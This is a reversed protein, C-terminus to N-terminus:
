HVGGWKGLSGSDLLSTPIRGEFENDQLYLIILKPLSGLLEGPITGTLSNDKLWLGKLSTLLAITAPVTGTLNNSSLDLEEVIGYDSSSTDCKVNREGWDCVHEPSLWGSNSAWDEGNNNYYISALTFRDNFFDVANSTPENMVWHGALLFPDNETTFDLKRFARLTEPFAESLNRTLPQGGLLRLLHDYKAEMSGFQELPVAPTTNVVSANSANTNNNNDSSGKSSTSTLLVVVIVVIVVLLILVFGAAVYLEKKSLSGWKGTEEVDKFDTNKIKPQVKPVAGTPDNTVQSADVEEEEDKSEEKSDTQNELDSKNIGSKDDKGSPAQFPITTAHSTASPPIPGFMFKTTSAGGHSGSRGGVGKMPVISKSEPM